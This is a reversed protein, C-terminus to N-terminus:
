WIQEDKDDYRRSEAIYGGGLVIDGKYFVISQGPTVARQPAKLVTMARGDDMVKVDAGVPRAAYRIKATVGPGELMDRDRVVNDESIVVSSFLDDNDGLIVSGSAADIATVFVPRGLAVGLGKRQGITFNLVGEHEGLVNGHRDTFVGGPMTFGKKKLFSRYDEGDDIFCIEQSDKAESSTLEMSRALQRVSEKDEALNLPLILRSIVDEGLRHLMYSQDKAESAAKKIYWKGTMEDRITDAYHGTAIYFAGIEDAADLLTAFKVAPNCVICPNPTRGRMYEDCFVDIVAEEFAGSVNRYLLPIGLEGAAAEAKRRGEGSEAMEDTVDFYLGTVDYGKELLLLAAAASDVGGSLGLVVKNKMKMSTMTIIRKRM